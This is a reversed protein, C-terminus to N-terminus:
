KSALAEKSPTAPLSLFMDPLPPSQWMPVATYRPFQATLLWLAGPDTTRIRTGGYASHARCTLGGGGGALKRRKGGLVESSGSPLQALLIPFLCCLVTVSQIPCPPSPSPPPPSPGMPPPPVLSHQSARSCPLNPDRRAVQTTTSDM